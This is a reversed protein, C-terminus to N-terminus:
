KPLNAGRAKAQMQVAKCHNGAQEYCASLAMWASQDQPNPYKTAATQLAAAADQYRHQVRFAEGRVLAVEAEFPGLPGVHELCDIAHQTMGLELYGTAESLRKAVRVFQTVDPSM